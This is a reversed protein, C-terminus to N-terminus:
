HNTFQRPMLLAAKLIVARTAPGAANYRSRFLRLPTPLKKPPLRRRATRATPVFVAPDHSRGAEGGEGVVGRCEWQLYDKAEVQEVRHVENGAHEKVLM